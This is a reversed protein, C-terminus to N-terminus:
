RSAAASTWSLSATATSGPARGLSRGPLSEGAFTGGPIPFYGKPQRFSHVGRLDRRRRPQLCVRRLLRFQALGLSIPRRSDRGLPRRSVHGRRAAGQSRPTAEDVGDARPQGPGGRDRHHRGQRGRRPSRALQASGEAFDSPPLLKLLGLQYQWGVCDAQFEDVLDLVALYGRLQEKTSEPTFDEADVDRWHFTSATISSM